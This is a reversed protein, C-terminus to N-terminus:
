DLGRIAYALRSMRYQEDGQVAANVAEVAAMRPLAVEVHKGTSLHLLSRNDGAQYEVFVVASPEVMKGGINIIM